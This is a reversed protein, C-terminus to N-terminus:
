IRRAQEGTLSERKSIVLAGGGPISSKRVLDESQETEKYILPYVRDGKTLEFAEERYIASSTQGKERRKKRIASPAERV